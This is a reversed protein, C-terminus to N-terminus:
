TPTPRWEHTPASAGTGSQKCVRLREAGRPLSTPTKLIYIGTNTPAIAQIPTDYRTPARLEWPSAESKVMWAQLTDKKGCIDTNHKLNQTLIRQLFRRLVLGEDERGM